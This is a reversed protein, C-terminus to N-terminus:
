TAVGQATMHWKWWDKAALWPQTWNDLGRHHLNAWQTPEGRGRSKM